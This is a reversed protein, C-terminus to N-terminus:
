CKANWNQKRIDIGFFFGERSLIIKLFTTSCLVLRFDKLVNLVYFLTKYILPSPIERKVICIIFRRRATDELYTTSSYFSSSLPNLHCMFFSIGRAMGRRWAEERRPGLLSSDHHLTTKM